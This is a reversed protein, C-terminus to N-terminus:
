RPVPTAGRGGQRSRTEFQGNDLERIAGSCQAQVKAFAARAAGPTTSMLSWPPQREYRSTRGPYVRGRGQARAATVTRRTVCWSTLGCRRWCSAPPWRPPRRECCMRASAYMTPTVADLERDTWGGEPGILVTPTALTLPAGDPVALAIGPSGRASASLSGWGPRM